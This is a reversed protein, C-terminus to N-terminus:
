LKKEMWIVQTSGFYHSPLGTVKYGFRKFYDTTNLRAMCGLVKYGQERAANEVTEILFKGIGQHQKSEVVALHSFWGVGSEKEFLKVVGVLEGTQDDIAMFHQSIPEFDDKETGKPQGWPERLVRYRLAYYNKFEERTKPTKIVIM